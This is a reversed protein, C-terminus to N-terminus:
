EYINHGAVEALGARDKVMIFGQDRMILGDTCL